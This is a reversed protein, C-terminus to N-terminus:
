LEIVNDDESSGKVPRCRVCLQERLRALCSQAKAALASAEDPKVAMMWCQMSRAAAFSEIYRKLAGGLGEPCNHPQAFSISILRGSDDEGSSRRVTCPTLYRSIIGAAEDISDSIFGELIRQEDGTAGIMETFREPLGAKARALAMYGSETFIRRAIDSECITIVVERM